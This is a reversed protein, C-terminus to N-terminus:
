DEPLAGSLRWREEVRGLGDVSQQERTTEFNLSAYLRLAAPNPLIVWVFVDGAGRKREMTILERVLASAVGRRRHEPHTWVSEVHPTENERAIRALGITRGGARAVAWLGNDWSRRWREETWSSEHPRGPLLWDPESRLAALRAERALRWEDPSHLLRVHMPARDDGGPDQEAM